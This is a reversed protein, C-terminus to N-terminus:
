AQRLRYYKVKHLTIAILISRCYGFIPIKMAEDMTSPLM